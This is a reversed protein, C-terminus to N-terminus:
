FVLSGYTGALYESMSHIQAEDAEYLANLIDGLSLVGIPKREEVVPLHRIHRSSMVRLADHVKDEPQAVVVDRTMIEAMTVNQIMACNEACAGLVDRESVIGVLEGTHASTVLLAGIRHQCMLKLGAAVSTEPTVVVVGRRNKQNLVQRVHM